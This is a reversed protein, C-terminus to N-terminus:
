QKKLIYRRDIDATTYKHKIQKKTLCLVAKSIRQLSQLESTHEESRPSTDTNEPTVEQIGGANRCRHPVAPLYEVQSTEGAGPMFVPGGKVPYIHGPCFVYSRLVTTYPFLIDTRTSIPPRRRRLCLLIWCLICLPM